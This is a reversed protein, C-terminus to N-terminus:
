IWKCVIEEKKRKIETKERERERERERDEEISHARFNRKDCDSKREVDYSCENKPLWSM